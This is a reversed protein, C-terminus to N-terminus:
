GPPPLVPQWDRIEARSELSALLDFLIVLSVISIRVVSSPLQPPNRTTLAGQMLNQATNSRSVAM